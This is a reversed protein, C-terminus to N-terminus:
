KSNIKYLTAHLTFAHTVSQTLNDHHIQEPKKLIGYHERWSIPIVLTDVSTLMTNDLHCVEKSLCLLFTDKSIDPKYVLKPTLQSRKVKQYSKVNIKAVPFTRYVLIHADYSRNHHLNYKIDDDYVIAIPKRGVRQSVWPMLKQSNALYAEQTVITYLKASMSFFVIGIITAAFLVYKYTTNLVIKGFFDYLSKVVLALGFIHVIMIIAFYYRGWYLFIEHIDKASVSQMVFPLTFISYLVVVILAVLNGQMARFYLLILGIAILITILLGFSDYAFGLENMILFNKFGLANKFLLTHSVAGKKVYYIYSITIKVLLSLLTVVKPFNIRDFIKRFRYVLVILAFILLSVGYLIAMLQTETIHPIIRAYQWKLLYHARLSLTYHVSMALFLSSSAIILASKLNHFKWLHYLSLFIVVAYLLSAEGRTFPVLVMMLCLSVFNVIGINEKTAIRYTIVALLLLQVQWIAESYTSKSFWISLPASMAFFLMLYSLMVNLGMKRFLFYLLPLSSIYIMVMILPGYDYGYIFFGIASVAATLPLFFGMDRGNIINNVGSLYYDSADAIFFDFRHLAHRQMFYLVVLAMVLLITWLYSNTKKYTDDIMYIFLFVIGELMLFYSAYRLISVQPMYYVIQSIVLGLLLILIGWNFIKGGRTM